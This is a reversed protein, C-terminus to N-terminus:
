DSLSPIIKYIAGRHDVIYLAGKEDEGFSSISMSTKQLLRHDVTRKGDYRLGWVNGSGYDAYLYVGQLAPFDQGRYVYGGTVSVGQKRTYDIIPLIFPDQNCTQGIAPTCIFGEMIRWGYNGGKEIIDIEERRRQGVDGVFLNGTVPDFSFRWPNRIGYAYIEPRINKEEAFPNDTPIQYHHFRNTPDIDIRLIKGLLTDLRQGHNHPDNRSGGDRTGIYLYGDPGFAIMGGNHNGYPQQFKLLIKESNPDARDKKDHGQLESIYTWLKKDKRTTYNVFFRKNSAYDPHFALGLLGMEGRFKVRKRIDLFIPGPGTDKKELTRIIGPQEVVFLLSDKDGSSTVYVPSSFNEAVKEFAINPIRSSSDKVAKDALCFPCGILYVLSLIYLKSYVKM